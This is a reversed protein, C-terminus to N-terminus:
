LTLNILLKTGDTWNFRRTEGKPTRSKLRTKVAETAQDIVQEDGTHLEVM